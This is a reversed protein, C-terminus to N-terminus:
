NSVPSPEAASIKGLYSEIVKINQRIEAPLGRAIVEGYSLVTVRNCLSMILRMDHEVLIISVKFRDRVSLIMQHLTDTETENMGAAPEDLLLIAPRSALARAIELRRQAGYPLGGALQQWYSGLDFTDLLDFAAERIAKEKRNFSPVNCLVEILNFSTQRQQAIRVNDLVSMHDFLKINQFTRAIGQRAVAPVTLGVLNHGRFLIQGSTPELVGTLCNFLTTKGAGNPGIIGQIEGTILELTVDRLAHLGRFTMSLDRVELITSSHLVTENSMGFSMLMIQQTDCRLEIFHM